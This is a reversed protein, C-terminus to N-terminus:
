ASVEAPEAAPPPPPPSKKKTAGKKGGKKATAKKPSTRGELGMYKRWKGFQTTATADNIKRKRCEALVEARAKLRDAIDWVKGTTTGEKPRTVGNKQDKKVAASKEKKAM